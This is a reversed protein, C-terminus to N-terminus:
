GAFVERQGSEAVLKIPYGEKVRSDYDCPVARNIGSPSDKVRLGSEHCCRLLYIRPTKIELKNLNLCFSYQM